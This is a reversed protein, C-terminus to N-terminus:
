VEAQNQKASTMFYMSCSHVFRHLLKLLDMFLEMYRRILKSFEYSLKSFDM